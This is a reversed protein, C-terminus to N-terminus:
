QERTWLHVGSLSDGDCVVGVVVIVGKDALGKDVYEGWLRADCRVLVVRPRQRFPLCIGIHNLGPSEALLAVRVLKRGRSVGIAVLHDARVLHADRFLPGNARDLGDHPVPVEGWTSSQYVCFTIHYDLSRPCEMTGNKYQNRPQISPRSASVELSLGSM